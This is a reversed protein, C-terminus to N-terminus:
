KCEENLHQEMKTSFEKFYKKMFGICSFAINKVILPPAEKCLSSLKMRM